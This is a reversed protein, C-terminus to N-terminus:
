DAAQKQLFASPIYATVITGLGDIRIGVRSQGKVRCVYGSMGRFKGETVTVREGNRFAIERETCSIFLKNDDDVDNWKIFAEMQDPPIVLPKLGNKGVAKGAADRYPVYYHHFYKLPHQGIYKKLTEETSKVFLLNPILSATKVCRKGNVISIKHITPLFVKISDAELVSKAKGEQGYAVRMLFWVTEASDTEASVTPCTRVYDPSVGTATTAPGSPVDPAFGTDSPLPKGGQATANTLAHPYTKQM